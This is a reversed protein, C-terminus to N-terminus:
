PELYLRRVYDEALRRKSQEAYKNLARAEIPRDLLARPLPIEELSRGFFERIKGKQKGRFRCWRAILRSNLLVMLAELLEQDDDDHIVLAVDSQECWGERSLAFRPETARRPVILRPRGFLDPDRPWHLQFWPIKGQEVERRRSLIAKFRRLHRALNPLNELETRRHMQLLYTNSGRVRFPEIDGARVVRRVILRHERRTLELSALESETLLFIGQGLEAAGDVLPLNRKTVRDAGSVMGQRTAFVDGLVVGTRELAKLQTDHECPFYYRHSRGSVTIRPATTVDVFTDLVESPEDQDLLRSLGDCLPALDSRNPVRKVRAFLTPGEKNRKSLHILLVHQGPADHFLRMDGFDILAEVTCHESVRDRLNQASDTTLWYSGMLFILDGGPALLEIGLHLFLQQLDQRQRIVSRWAPSARLKRFERAHHKERVYPPNAIIVDFNQRGLTRHRTESDLLDLTDCCLITAEPLQERTWLALHEQREVGYLRKGTGSTEALPLLLRGTGVAPDLVTDGAKVRAAVLSGMLRAVPWPTLFCGIRKREDLSMLEVAASEGQQNVNTSHKM